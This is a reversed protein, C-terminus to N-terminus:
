SRPLRGPIVATKLEVPHGPNSPLESTITIEILVPWQGAELSDVYSVASGAQAQTAYRFSVTPEFGKIVTGVVNSTEEQAGEGTAGQVTANKQTLEGEESISLTVLRLGQAPDNLYSHVSLGNAKFSPGVAVKVDLDGPHVADRLLKTTADIVTVGYDIASQRDIMKQSARQTEDYIDYTIASVITLGGMVVMLELITMARLARRIRFPNSISSKM